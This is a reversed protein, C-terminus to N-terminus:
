LRGFGQMTSHVRGGVDFIRGVLSYTMSTGIIEVGNGIIRTPGPCVVKQADDYYDLQETYLKYNDKERVAVVENTLILHRSVTNYFGNKATINTKEGNNSFIDADVDELLFDNPQTGTFAKKARIDATKVGNDDQTINAKEIVFHQEDTKRNAFEPDYGGRPALFGAVPTKWFPFTLILFLPTLWIFNRTSIM